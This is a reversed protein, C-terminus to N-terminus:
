VSIKTLLLNIYFYQLVIGTFIIPVAVKAFHSSNCKELLGKFIIKLEDQMKTNLARNRGFELIDSANAFVINHAALACARTIWVTSLGKPNDARWEGIAKQLDPGKIIALVFNRSM